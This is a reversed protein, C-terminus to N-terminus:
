ELSHISLCDSFGNTCNMEIWEDNEYLKATSEIILPTIVVAESVISLKSLKMRYKFLVPLFKNRNPNLIFYSFAHIMLTQRYRLLLFFCQRYSLLQSVSSRDFNLRTVRLQIHSM